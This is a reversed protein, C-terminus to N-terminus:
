TNLLNPIYEYSGYKDTIPRGIRRGGRIKRKWRYRKGSGYLSYGDHRAISRKQVPTLYTQYDTNSGM